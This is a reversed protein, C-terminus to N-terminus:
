AAVLDVLGGISTVTEGRPEPLHWADGGRQVFVGRLGARRAGAVDWDHAAVMTLERAPVELAEALTRYAQQHPKFRHGLDVSLAPDVLGALGAHALQAAVAESSGNTFAVLRHGNARLAELGPVVDDHAPLRRMTTAARRAAEDDVVVGRAAALRQLETAAVAEFTRFADLHNAVLSGHLLRAFWTAVADADDLLEACVARMPALSLLTENVDFVLTAM